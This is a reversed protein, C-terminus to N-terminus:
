EYTPLSGLALAQTFDKRAGADDGTQQRLRGRQALLRADGGIAVVSAQQSLATTQALLGSIIGSCAFVKSLCQC